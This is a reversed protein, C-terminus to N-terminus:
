ICVIHLLMYVLIYEFWAIMRWVRSICMLLPTKKNIEKESSSQTMTIRINKKTVFYKRTFREVLDFRPKVFFFCFIKKLLKFSMKATLTTIFIRRWDIPLWILSISIKQETKKWFNLTNSSTWYTFFIFFIIFFIIFFYTFNFVVSFYQSFSITSLAFFFVTEYWIVYSIFIVRQTFVRWQLTKPLRFNKLNRLSVNKWTRNPESPEPKPNQHTKKWFDM